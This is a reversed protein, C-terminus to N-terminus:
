RESDILEEALLAALTALLFYGIFPEAIILPETFHGCTYTNSNSGQLNELSVIIAHWIGYHTACAGSGGTFSNLWYALFFLGLVVVSAYIFRERKVGYGTFAWLIFYWFIKFPNKRRKRAQEASLAFYQYYLAESAADTFAGWGLENEHEWGDPGFERALNKVHNVDEDSIHFLKDRFDTISKIVKPDIAKNLTPNINEIRRVLRTLEKHWTKQIQIYQKVTTTFYDEIEDRSLNHENVDAEPNQAFSNIKARRSHLKFDLWFMLLKKSFTLLKPLSDLIDEFNLWKLSSDEDRAPFFCDKWLHEAAYLSEESNEQLTINDKEKIKDYVGRKEIYLETRLDSSDKSRIDMLKTYFNTPYRHAASEWKLLKNPQLDAFFLAKQLVRSLLPDELGTIFKVFYNASFEPIQQSLDQETLNTWIIFQWYGLQISSPQEQKNKKDGEKAIITKHIFKRFAENHFFAPDDNKVIIVGSNDAIKEKIYQMDQEPSAAPVIDFHLVTKKKYVSDACNEIKQKLARRENEQMNWLLFHM